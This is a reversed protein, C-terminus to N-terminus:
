LPSTGVAKAANEIPVAFAMGAFVHQGTPNFIATVIGVVEGERNVLPGGSNGPNAAADFQILNSLRAEGEKRDPDVFERKLGAVVGASVSPGLGFPFGVAVVPDGPNLGGTSALTAPKLDDPATKARIVALDNEPQINVVSAESKSGDWFTVVWRDTSRIVHLNTLIDGKATIVVGSGISDPKDKDQQDDPTRPPLVHQGGPKEKKMKKAAAAEAKAEQAAREPSLFGEVRVVSPGVMAAAIATDAPPADTHSMTYKVANDIDWQSLARPGPHFLQWGGILLLVALASAVAPLIREHRAAFSKSWSWLQAGLRPSEEWQAHQPAQSPVSGASGRQRGARSYLSKRKM